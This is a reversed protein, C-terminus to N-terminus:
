GKWNDKEKENMNLKEKRTKAGRVKGGGPALTDLSGM